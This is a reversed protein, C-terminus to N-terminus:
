RILYTPPLIHILTNLLNLLSKPDYSVGIGKVTCYINRNLNCRCIQRHQYGTFTSGTLFDKGLYDVTKAAAFM